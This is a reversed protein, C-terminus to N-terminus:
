TKRAVFHARRVRSATKGRGESRRISVPRDQVALLFARVKRAAGVSPSHRPKQPLLPNEPDGIVATLILVIARASHRPFIGRDLTLCGLAAALLHPLLRVLILIHTDSPCESGVSRARIIARSDDGDRCGRCLPRRLGLPSAWRKASLPAITDPAARAPAAGVPTPAFPGLDDDGIHPPPPLRDRVGM